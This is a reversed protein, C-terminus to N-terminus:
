PRPPPRPLPEAPLLPQAGQHAGARAHPARHLAREVIQTPQKFEECGICYLGEYEGVYCITRTRAAAIQELLATCRRTTGRSPPASGTTTAASSAAGSLGRVRRGDPRGLGAADLGNQEAAQLVAQSHEDMGM